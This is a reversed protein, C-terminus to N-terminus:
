QPLIRSTPADQIIPEGNAIKSQIDKLRAEALLVEAALKASETRLESAELESLQSYPCTGCVARGAVKALSKLARTQTPYGRFRADSALQGNGAEDLGNGAEDLRLCNLQANYGAFIEGEKSPSADTLRRSSEKTYDTYVEKPFTLRKHKCNEFASQGRPKFLRM